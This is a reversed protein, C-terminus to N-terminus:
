VGCQFVRQLFLTEFIRTLKIVRLNQERQKLIIKNYNNLLM